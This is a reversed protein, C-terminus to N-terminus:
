ELVEVSGNAVIQIRSMGGELEPPTVEAPAAAARAMAFRPQPQYGGTVALRVLKYGKAGLAGKMVEARAKFASIAEVTL